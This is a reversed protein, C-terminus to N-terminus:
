QSPMEVLQVEQDFRVLSQTEQAPRGGPRPPHALRLVIGPKPGNEVRTVGVIKAGHNFGTQPDNCVVLKGVHEETLEGAKVTTIPVAGPEVLGFRRAEDDSEPSEDNDSPKDWPTTKFGAAKMDAKAEEIYDDVQHKLSAMFSLAQEQAQEGSYPERGVEERFVNYFSDLEKAAAQHAVRGAFPETTQRVTTVIALSTRTAADLIANPAVLKLKNMPVAIRMQADMVKESHDFKAEAMPDDVGARGNVLDRMLNFVGKMDIATILIGTSVEVFDMAATYLSEHERLKDEREEKRAQTKEDQAAKLTLMEREQDAKRKDSARVSRATIYPGITGAM